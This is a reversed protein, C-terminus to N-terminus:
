SYQLDVILPQGGIHVLFWEGISPIRCCIKRESKNCVLSKLKSLLVNYESTGSKLTKLKEYDSLYSDCQDSPVCESDHSCFM